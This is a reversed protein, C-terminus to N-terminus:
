VFARWVAPFCTCILSGTFTFLLHLVTELFGVEAVAYDIIKKIPCEEPVPPKGQFHQQQFMHHSAVSAAMAFPNTHSISNCLSDRPEFSNFVRGLIHRILYKNHLTIKTSEQDIKILDSYFRFFILNQIIRWFKMASFDEFSIYSGNTKEKHWAGEPIAPKEQNAQSLWLLCGIGYVNRCFRHASM